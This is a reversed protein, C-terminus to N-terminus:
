GIRAKLDALIKRVRAANAGLDSLGERSKSRVDVKTGTGEPELRMVIDDVFGFFLTRQSAEVRGEQPAANVIEFGLSQATDL